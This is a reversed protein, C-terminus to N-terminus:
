LSMQRGAFNVPLPTFRKWLGWTKKEFFLTPAAKFFQKEGFGSYIRM